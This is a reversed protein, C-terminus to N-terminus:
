LIGGDRNTGPVAPQKAITTDSHAAHTLTIFRRKFTVTINKGDM